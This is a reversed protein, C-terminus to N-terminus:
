QVKKTKGGDEVVTKRGGINRFLVWCLGLFAVVVVGITGFEVWATKNLDLVPVNIWEVLSDARGPPVHMFRTRPGFLAEYGLHIRDFPNVSMKTGEEARCAWFVVPWAVPVRAFGGEAAPM